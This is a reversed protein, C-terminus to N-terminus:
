EEGEDGGEEEEKKGKGIVEPEAMEAEGLGEVAAEEEEEEIMRPATITVITREPAILFEVNEVDLDAVHISDGIELNSIDVEFYEPLDKPLCAIEIEHLNHYVLGGEQQGASKGRLVVPISVKIQEGAAVGLFDCHVVHDTIPDFEVEKLICLRDEKEDEIKLSVLHSESSYLLPRLALEEISIPISDEGHFYYIAPVIGDRRLARAASRGPTRKRAEIKIDSM